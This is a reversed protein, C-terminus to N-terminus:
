TAAARQLRDNIAIGIGIHPVPTVAIGTIPMHDLQHLCAFLNTAAEKLDGSLSLNRCQPASLGSQGFELLGEGTQLDTANLRIPKRPAYHKAMMGPAEIATSGSAFEPQYGLVSQIDQPAIPGPRLIRCPTDYASVITSELGAQTSGGDVILDVKHGLDNQVHTATTPSLAGSTNASPAAVPCGAQALLAQALPHAPVRIAVTPLGATVTQALPCTPVRTLVLTLPGPWFAQALQLAEPTFHALKSATELRDVHVILPNFSPRGKAAYIAQVAADNTADAGLGYVTETPFSVLSGSQLLQAAKALVEPEPESLATFNM